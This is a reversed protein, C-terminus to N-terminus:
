RYCFKFIACMNVVSVPRGEIGSTYGKNLYIRGGMAKVLAKCLCLGIGTGNMKSGLQEWKTFLADYDSPKVGCGSDSVVIRVCRKKSCLTPQQLDIRVFGKDTFKLANSTLNTIVQRLRLKDVTATVEEGESLILDVQSNQLSMMKRTPLLVEERIRCPAPALVIKGELCKNLDLMNTLLDVIYRISECILDICSLTDGDGDKLAMAAEMAVSLPNRVEHSLWETLGREADVLELAANKQKEAERITTIDQCCFLQGKISWNADRSTTCTAHLYLTKEDKKLFACDLQSESEGDPVQSVFNGKEDEPMLRIVPEGVVDERGFGTLKAITGNWETVCGQTDIEFIPLLSKEMLEQLKTRNNEENSVQKTVDFLVGDWVTYTVTSGDEESTEQVLRPMSKGHVNIIRGDARRMRGLRDFPSLKEMSEMVAAAYQEAEDELICNVLVKPNEMVHLAPFGFMVECYDSVFPFSSEGTEHNVAYVYLMAPVRGVMSEINVEM